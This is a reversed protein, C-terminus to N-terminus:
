HRDNLDDAVNCLESRLAELASLYEDVPSPNIETRGMEPRFNYPVAFRLREPFGHASYIEQVRVLLEEGGLDSLNLAELAAFLWRESLTEVDPVSREALSALHEAIDLESQETTLEILDMAPDDAEVVQALALDQVDATTLWNREFGYAATAWDLLGLRNLVDTPTM